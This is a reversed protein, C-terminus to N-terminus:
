KEKLNDVNGVKLTRVILKDGETKDLWMNCPFGWVKGSAQNKIVVKLLFWGAGIGKDNHGIRIATLDGLDLTDITFNDVKGSEFNDKDNDLLFDDSQGKPGFLAIKVDADTGAGRKSGTTVEIEYSVVEQGEDKSQLLEVSTRKDGEDTALWRNAIFRWQVDRALNRVFVKGLFWGPGFGKNDHGILIKHVEGVDIDEIGFVDSSGRQFNSKHGDLMIQGTKGKDGFLVLYVNASTGAGRVNPTTVTIRYEVIDLGGQSSLDFDAEIAGDGEDTAFWRNCLFKWTKKAEVEEIKVEKL